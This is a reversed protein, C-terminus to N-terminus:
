DVVVEAEPHGRDALNALLSDAQDVDSVPGLRVRYFRRENVTAPEIKTPALASLKTSLRRANAHNVFAGAQIFIQPDRDVKIVDVEGTARPIRGAGEDSVTTAATDDTGGNAGNSDGSGSRIVAATPTAKPRPGDTEGKALAALRRSEDAVIAVRVKATGEDKFGLLEAARASVDIIRGRAYPGRDNVRVKLQRGNELNTVRVMSPLPLTPHAATLANQNFTEGNATTKGHFKAGYWSAIGTEKYDYNVKPKYWRGGVEYPQGVKYRGVDPQPASPGQPRTAVQGGCGALVFCILAIRLGAIRVTQGVGM